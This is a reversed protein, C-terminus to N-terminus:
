SVPNPKKSFVTFHLGNKMDLEEDLNNLERLDNGHKLVLINEQPNYGGFDVLIQEVTLSEETTEFKKKEIFFVFKKNM